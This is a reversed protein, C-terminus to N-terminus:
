SGAHGGSKLSLGFFLSRGGDLFSFSGAHWLEGPVAEQGVIWVEAQGVPSGHTTAVTLGPFSGVPVAHQGRRCPVQRTEGGMIM